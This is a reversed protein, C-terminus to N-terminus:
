SRLQHARGQRERRRPFVLDRLRARARAVAQRATDHRVGLVGAIETRPEGLAALVLAVRQNRPLQKLADCAARIEERQAALLQPAARRADPTELADSDVTATVRAGARRRACYYRHSDLVVRRAIVKAWSRLQSETEGHFGLLCDNVAGSAQQVVDDEHEHNLVVRTCYRHITRKLVPILLCLLANRATADGARVRAMATSIEM